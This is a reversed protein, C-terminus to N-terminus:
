DDDIFEDEKQQEAQQMSKQKSAKKEYILDIDSYNRENHELDEAIEALKAALAEQDQDVRKPM